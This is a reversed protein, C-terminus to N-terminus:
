ILNRRVLIEAVIGDVPEPPVQLSTPLLKRWGKPPNKKWYERRAQETTRKEDVIKVPLNLSRLIKEANQHTTGDGLIALRLNYQALLNKLTSEFEATEIVKEFLIEGGSNLVAVGCKDRGPDIGVVCM